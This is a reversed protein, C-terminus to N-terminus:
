TLEIGMDDLMFEIYIGYGEHPNNVLVHTVAGILKNDQIIPSGSMGQVIGNAKAILRSDVVKFKIGKIDKEKQKEISVIEIDFTEIYNKDVCTIIQAYGTHVEEKKAINILDKEGKQGSYIGHLGTITNKEIKGINKTKINAQKSGAEGVSGKKIGTVTAEYMIGGVNKAGDIQHGLAGFVNTNPIVYTLTGVGLVNDKVYVGLSYTDDKLVPKIKTKIEKEGRVLIIDVESDKYQRLASLLDEASEIKKDKYYTITDNEKIDAAEWPKLLNVGDIIAFTKLVKVGTNLKLGVTEGGIYVKDTQSNITYAEVKKTFLLIFALLIAFIIKKM